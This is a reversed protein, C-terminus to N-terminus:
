HEHEGSNSLKANVFFAGKVVIKADPAITNVPTIATYGMDTSGKVVEIKEFSMTKSHEKTEKEHGKEEEHAEEKKDTQVFVYYKGDAEVIAENPIAPTVSKDLSVIGTINMGDILGEKNGTVNAHVSITKSENEFSSGISYIKADYETEPNNTLKFHVIQGMKMKPLDREFVQLDLHISNNDIVDLVPSSVDVYSGIQANINSVTGSIPSTIVLGSRLNGNTVKGPSIGMMQLQRQVSSRQTRLSKLEADASQLNKKAGADNDFLEKQRRYEQEAYIIRSNVTLYQEQLQIYEPNSITALVQGKRVFDGIQVNITKIVGGYLSTVTAKRNNPVRLLGNAKITSTLEKMEITALSVGVSKMQEETLEAITQPAEEHNEEKQETKPEVAKEAEEKKGCSIAFLSILVFSIIHYKINM